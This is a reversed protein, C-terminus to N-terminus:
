KLLDGCNEIVRDGYAFFGQFYDQGLGPTPTVANKLAANSNALEVLNAQIKALFPGQADHDLSDQKAVARYWDCVTVLAYYRSVANPLTVVSGDALTVTDEQSNTFLEATHFGTEMGLLSLKRRAMVMYIAEAAGYLNDIVSSIEFDSSKRSMCYNIINTSNNVGNIYVPLYSDMLLDIQQYGPEWLKCIDYLSNMVPDNEVAQYNQFYVPELLHEQGNATLYDRFSDYVAHSQPSSGTQVAMIENLMQIKSVGTTNAASALFETLQSAFRQLYLPNLLPKDTSVITVSGGFGKIAGTAPVVPTIRYRQALIERYVALDSLDAQPEAVRTWDVGAIDSLSFSHNAFNDLNQAM